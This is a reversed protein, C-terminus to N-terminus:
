KWSPFHRIPQFFRQCPEICMAKIYSMASTNRLHSWRGTWFRCAPYFLYHSSAPDRQASPFLLMADDYKNSSKKEEERDNPMEKNSFEKNDPKM